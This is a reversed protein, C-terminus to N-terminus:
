GADGYLSWVSHSIGHEQLWYAIESATKRGLNRMTAISHADLAIVDAVSRCGSRLLCNQARSSLNMAGIPHLLIDAEVMEASKGEKADRLGDLYGAMYGKQYLGERSREM